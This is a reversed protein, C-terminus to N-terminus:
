LKWACISFMPTTRYAMKEEETYIKESIDNELDVKLFGCKMLVEEDWAPRLKYM